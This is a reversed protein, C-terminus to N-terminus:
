GFGLIFKADDSMKEGRVLRLLNGRTAYGVGFGARLLPKRRTLGCRPEPRQRL